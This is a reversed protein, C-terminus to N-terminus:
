LASEQSVSWGGVLAPVYPVGVKTAVPCYVCKDWMDVFVLQPSKKFSFYHGKKFLLM